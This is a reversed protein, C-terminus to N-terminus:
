IIKAAIDEHFKTILYRCTTDFWVEHDLEVMEVLDYEGDAM